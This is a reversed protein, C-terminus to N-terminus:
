DVLFKLVVDADLYGQCHEEGIGKDREDSGNGQGTANGSSCSRAPGGGRRRGLRPLTAASATQRAAVGGRTEEVQGSDVLRAQEASQVGIHQGINGNPQVAISGAYQSPVTDRSRCKM